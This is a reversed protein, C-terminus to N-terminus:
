LPTGVVKGASPSVHIEGDREDLSWERHKLLETITHSSGVGLIRGKTGLAQWCWDGQLKTAANRPFHAISVAEDAPVLRHARLRRLLQTSLPQIAM